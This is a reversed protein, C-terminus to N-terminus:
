PVQLQRQLRWQPVRVASDKMGDGPDRVQSGEDRSRWLGDKVWVGERWEQAPSTQGLLDSSSKRNPAIHGLRSKEQTHPKKQCGHPSHLLRLFGDPVLM